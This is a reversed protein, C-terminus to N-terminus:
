IFKYDDCGDRSEDCKGRFSFFRSLTEGLYIVSLLNMIARSTESSTNEDNSLSSGFKEPCSGHDASNKLLFRSKTTIPWEAKLFSKLPHSSRSSPGNVGRLQSLNSDFM